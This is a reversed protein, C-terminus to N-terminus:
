WFFDYLCDRVEGTYVNVLVADDWYRVWQYPGYAAPLHYTWPDYIRYTQGFFLAELFYGVGVRRYNYGRYPPYYRGVHFAGRNDARYRQWDYRNDRRWDHNWVQVQGRPAEYRRDDVRRDDFRGDRREYQPTPRPAEGRGPQNWGPQGQPAPAANQGWINRGAAVLPSSSPGSHTFPATQSQMSPAAAVPPSQRTQPAAPAAAMPPAQRAQPAPAPGPMAPAAQPMQPASRQERGGENRVAGHQGPIAQAVAGTAVMAMSLAVAFSAMPSIKTM